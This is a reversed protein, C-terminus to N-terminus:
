TSDTSLKALDRAYEAAIMTAKRAAQKHEARETELKEIMKTTRDIHRQLFETHDKFFNYDKKAELLELRKLGAEMPYPVRKHAAIRIRKLDPGLRNALQKLRKNAKKWFALRHRLSYLEWNDCKLKPDLGEWFEPLWTADISGLVTITEQKVKGAVRKNAVLVVKLRYPQRQEKEGV